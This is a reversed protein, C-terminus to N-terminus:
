VFKPLGSHLGTVARLDADVLPDMAAPRQLVRLAADLSAGGDIPQNQSRRENRVAALNHELDHRFRPKRNGTIGAEEPVSDVGIRISRRLFRHFRYRFESPLRIPELVEEAGVDRDSRQGQWRRPIQRLKEM